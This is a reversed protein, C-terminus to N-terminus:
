QERRLAINFSGPCRDPRCRYQVIRNLLVDLDLTSSLNGAVEILRLFRAPRTIPDLNSM